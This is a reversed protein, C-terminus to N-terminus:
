IASVWFCRSMTSSSPVSRDLRDGLPQRVVPKRNLLGPGAFLGQLAQGLEREVDQDGVEAQGADAAAVHEIRREFSIGSMMAM